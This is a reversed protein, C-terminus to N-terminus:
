PGRADHKTLTRSSRRRSKSVCSSMFCANVRADHGTIKRELVVDGEGREALKARHGSKAVVIAVGVASASRALPQSHLM